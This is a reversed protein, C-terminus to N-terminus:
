VPLEGSLCVWFRAKLRSAPAVQVFYEPLGTRSRPRLSKRSGLTKQCAALLLQTM